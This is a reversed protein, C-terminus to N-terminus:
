INRVYSASIVSYGSYTYTITAQAVITVGDGAFVKRVEQTVVSGSMTYAISKLLTAGISWKEGTVVSGSWTNAYNTGVYMPENDLLFDYETAYTAPTLVQAARYPLVLGQTATLAFLLPNTFSTAATPATSTLLGPTADSVFYYDGPALGSLGSLVGSFYLLFNNADVYSVVGVGLTLASNAQALVWSTGNFYVANGSSFGHAAQAVPLTFPGDSLDSSSLQTELLGLAAPNRILPKKTM